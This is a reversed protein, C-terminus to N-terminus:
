NLLPLHYERAAPHTISRGEGTGILININDWDGSSELLNHIFIVDRGSWETPDDTVRTEAM